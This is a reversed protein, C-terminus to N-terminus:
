LTNGKGNSESEKLEDYQAITYYKGNKNIIYLDYYTNWFDRERVQILQLYTYLEGLLKEKSNLFDDRLFKDLLRGRQEVPVIEEFVQGMIHIMGNVNYEDIPNGYEETWISKLCEEKSKYKGTKCKCVIDWDVYHVVMPRKM